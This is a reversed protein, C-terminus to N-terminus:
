RQPLGPPMPSPAPEPAPANTSGPLTANTGGVKIGLIGLGTRVGERVMGEAGAAVLTALNASFNETPHSLTGGLVIPEPGWIYGDHEELGLLERAFPIMNVIRPTIGHRLSGRLSGDLSTTVEGTIKILGQSELVLDRWETLGDRIEFRTSFTTVPLHRFQELGTLAALKQLAPVNDLIIGEGRIIGNGSRSEGPGFSMTGSGSLRGTIQNALHPLLVAVPLNEWTASLTSPTGNSPFRGEVRIKGGLRGSLDAGTLSLGKDALLASAKGLRLDLDPYRSIAFNGGRLEFRTEAGGPRVELGTGLLSIMVPDHDIFLDTKNGRIVDVLVLSPIWKPPPPTASSSTKGATGTSAKGPSGIRLNLNELSIEKVGWFGRLISSPHLTARIGSAEMRHLVTEGRGTASFRPSSVGFWHWNLPALEAEAKLVGATKEQLLTRCDEGGLWRAVLVLGAALLVLPLLPPLVWLLTKKVAERIIHNPIGLFSRLPPRRSKPSPTPFDRRFSRRLM